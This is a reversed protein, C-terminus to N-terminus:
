HNGPVPSHLFCKHSHHNIVVVCVRAHVCVYVAALLEFLFLGVMAVEVTYRDPVSETGEAAM